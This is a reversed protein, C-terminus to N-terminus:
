PVLVPMAGNELLVIGGLTLNAIQAANNITIEGTASSWFKNNQKFRFTGSEDSGQLSTTLWIVPTQGGSYNITSGEMILEDAKIYGGSPRQGGYLAM